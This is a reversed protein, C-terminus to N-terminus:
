WCEARSSRTPRTCCWSPRPMTGPPPSTRCCGCGSAERIELLSSKTWTSTWWTRLLQLRRPRRRRPRRPRQAGRRHLQGAAQAPRARRRELPRLPLGRIRRVLRRQEARPGSGLRFGSRYRCRGRALPTYRPRRRLLHDRRERRRLASTDGPGAREALLLGPYNRLRGDLRVQKVFRVEYRGEQDGPVIQPAAVIRQEFDPHRAFFAQKASLTRERTQRRPWLLGPAACLGRGPGQRQAARPRGALAPVPRPNRQRCGPGASPVPLLARRPMVPRLLRRRM